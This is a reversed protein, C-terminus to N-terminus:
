PTTRARAETLRQRIEATQFAAALTDLQRLYHQGVVGTSIAHAIRERLADVDGRRALAILADLEDAPPFEEPAPAVVPAPMATEPTTSAERYIWDLALLRGLAELLQAESFPKPLFDDCGASTAEHRNFDFVSASIAIIPLHRPLGLQRVRAATELGGLVPMRLDLLVIDPQRAQIAALCERGDAAQEIIFGLPELLDRLVHRNTEEDDTVLVHRRPGAHGTVTRLTAAVPLTTAAVEPLTLDFWFRSGQGPTSEVAIRSGLLETLRQSIALGLGTGQIGANGPIVQHFPQFIAALQEAAIGPGTDRVEFRVRGEVLITRLIIDGRLTFKVANGLLNFLVQRLKQEDTSVLRPLGPGLELRFTLGKDTARQEFLDAASKVVRTLPFTTAHLTMKGAEIKALDLVENIMQLLHEGNRGVIGLQHRGKESLGSEKRLIQAYGLIANLPTRLEHSMNALFASKAHNASEASAMADRLEHTRTAVLSELEANRRRVTRMRWLVLGYIGLGCGAAYLVTIWWRQWWPALVAFHFETPVSVQGNSDHARVTLSHKGAPLRELTFEPTARSPAWAENDIKTEYRLQSEDLRDTAFTFILGRRAFPLTLAAAPALPLREGDLNTIKAIRTSFTGAQAFASPLETRVLARSGGLWVTSGTIASEELVSLLTGVLRSTTFPLVEIKGDLGARLITPTENVTNERSLWVQRPTVSPFLALAGSGQTALARNLPELARFRLNARDFSYLRNGALFCPAGDSLVVGTRLPQRHDSLDQGDSYPEVRLAMGASATGALGIVRYFGHSTTAAWVEGQSTEVLQHVEGAVGRVAGTEQWGESTRRMAVLGSATGAYAYDKEQSAVLLSLTPGSNLTVRRGESLAFPMISQASGVILEQPHAALASVAGHGPLERWTAARLTTGILRAPELMFLGDRTGAYLRGDHRQLATVSRHGLNRSEDAISVPELSFRVIGIPLSVWLGAQRDEHLLTPRALSLAREGVGFVQRLEGASSLQVCGGSRLALVFSGDRLRRGHDIRRDRLTESFGVELHQWGSTPSWRDLALAESAILWAGDAQDTVFSVPWAALQAHSFVVRWRTGDWTELKESGARHVILKGDTASWTRLPGTREVSFKGAHWTLIRDATVFFVHDDAAHVRRVEPLPRADPPLKAEISIYTRGGRGDDELYGLEHAAGLWIRDSQDCDLGYITGANAVPIPSWTNGDYRLVTNENGVYLAGGRDETACEYRTNQLFNEESFVRLSARGMELSHTKVVIDPASIAAFSSGVVGGALLLRIGQARLRRLWSSSQFWSM